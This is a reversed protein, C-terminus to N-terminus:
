PGYYIRQLEDTDAGLRYRLRLCWMLLITRVAGDRDWRRGSSVLAEGLAKPAALRRLRACIEIDEMLSQRPFGGVADYLERSVFLGQDGTAIGSLRSRLAM